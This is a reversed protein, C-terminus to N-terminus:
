GKIKCRLSSPKSGVIRGDHEAVIGYFGSHDILMSAVSTASEVTPFDTRFNHQSSVTAFAAHIIPGCEAADIPKAERISISM